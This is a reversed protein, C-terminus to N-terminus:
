SRVRHELRDAVENVFRHIVVEAVRQDFARDLLEGFAGLPPEYTGTLTVQVLPPELSLATIELRADVTPFLLHGRAARWRLPVVSRMIGVPEFDGVEVVVDRSIEFGGIDLHLTALVRDGQDTSADTAKQLLGQADSALLAIADDFPVEAYSYAHLPRAM